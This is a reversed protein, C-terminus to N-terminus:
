FLRSIDKITVWIALAILLVFFVLDIKQEIKQNFPKRRLKEVVLFLLKGGDTVPIPLINFLAVYVSIVAVFQIFYNVGLQGVQVFLGFIGVPGVLQAGTPQKKIAKSLAIGWGKLVGVTLDGTAQIGKVPAQYWPYSKLATRVLAVGMPGESAPPSVRPILSADFTEKGRRITLIVNEGSHIQTFEQVEKVKTINEINSKQNKINLKVIADGIELGAREAPSGSAVASIQVKPDILNNNEEDEVITPVGLGMLISLLIASVIWFSVVGGLIILAKKWFPKSNFSRPDNAKAEKELGYIRVFAGFPLLNISYLTEGFKKGFLRPPFGIGFEEVKVGFKKALVFHGLEHLVLLGILSVFAIIIILVM